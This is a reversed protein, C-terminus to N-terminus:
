AHGRVKEVREQNMQEVNTGSCSVPLQAVKPSTYALASACSYYQSCQM